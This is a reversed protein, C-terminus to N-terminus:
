FITLCQQAKTKIERASSSVFPGSFPLPDNIKQSSPLQKEEQAPFCKTGFCILNDCEFVILTFMQFVDNLRLPLNEFFHM